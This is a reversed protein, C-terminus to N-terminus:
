LTCQANVFAKIASLGSRMDYSNHGGPITLFLRSLRPAADYLRRASSLPMIEDDQAHIVATPKHARGIRAASDLADDLAVLASAAAPPVVDALAAFTIHMVVASVAPLTALHAAVAGGMSEGWAILRRRPFLVEVLRVVAAGDELISTESVDTPSSLGFGRYDFAVLTVDLAAALQVLSPVRGTVNGANGHAHIIIPRASSSALPVIVVHVRSPAEPIRSFARTVPTPGDVMMSVVTPHAPFAMAGGAAPHFMFKRIVAPGALVAEASILFSAM